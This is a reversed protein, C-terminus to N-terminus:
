YLGSDTEVWRKQRHLGCPLIAQTVAHGKAVRLWRNETISKLRLTLFSEEQSDILCEYAEEWGKQVDYHNNLWSSIFRIVQKTNNGDWVIKEM